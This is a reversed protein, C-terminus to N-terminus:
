PAEPLDGFPLELQIAPTLIIRPEVAYDREYIWDLLPFGESWGILVYGHYFRRVLKEKLKDLLAVPTAFRESYVAPSRLPRSRQMTLQTDEFGVVYRRGLREAAREHVPHLVEFVAIHIM